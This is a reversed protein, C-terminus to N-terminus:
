DASRGTAARAKAPIRAPRLRATYCCRTHRPRRRAAGGAQSLGQVEDLLGAYSLLEPVAGFGQGHTELLPIETDLVPYGVDALAARAERASRTGRRVKVLLVGAAVPHIQELETLLDWTPGLRSVDLSTPAVPIIVIESALAASRCIALDAPGTDIVVHDRDATDAMSLHLDPSPRVAVFPELWTGGLWHRASQQPDADILMMRGTLHLGYALNVATTTKGTGGKLGLTAIRMGAGYYIVPRVHRLLAGCCPARPGAALGPPKGASRQASQV